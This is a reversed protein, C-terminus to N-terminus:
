ASQTIRQRLLERLQSLQETSLARKPIQRFMAKSVYLVFLNPTEIFRIYGAWQTNSDGTVYVFRTGLDDVQVSIKGKYFPTNQLSRVLLRPKILNVALLALCVVIAYVAWDTDGDFLSFVACAGLVSCLLIDILLFVM